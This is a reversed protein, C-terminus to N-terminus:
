YLCYTVDPSPSPSLSFVALSTQWHHSCLESLSPGHKVDCNPCHYVDIDVAHHEEVQVCSFLPFFCPIVNLVPEYM